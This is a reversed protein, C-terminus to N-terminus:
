VEVFFRKNEEMADIADKMQIKMPENKRCTEEYEEETFYDRGNFYALIALRKSLIEGIESPTYVFRRIKGSETEVFDAFFVRQVLVVLNEWEKEGPSSSFPKL